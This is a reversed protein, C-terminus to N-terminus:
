INYKVSFMWLRPQIFYLSNSNSDSIENYSDTNISKNDTINKATFKFEWKSDQKQYYLNANLFSYENKYTKEENQYNYYSYDATLIFRKLFAIEMNAFPRNTISGTEAYKSFSLNYGVEFNPANKFKTAVSAQYSHSFNKSEIEEGNVLNNFISNNFNARFNTKLKSYTKGYRFNGSFTEDAFASNIPYSVRDIGVLETSNKIGNVKKTYSLSANINTFSFMSFSFYSLSYRHNLSNELDRNGRSMSRYNSYVYGEAAKNIDSFQSTISYNFRLSESSKFQLRAYINPVVKTLSEDEVTGLQDDKIKYQHLIVGPDFTFIGTVM